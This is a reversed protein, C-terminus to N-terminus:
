PEAVFVCDRLKKGAARYITDQLHNLIIVLADRLAVDDAGPQNYANTAHSSARTCGMWVEALLKGDPTSLDLLRCGDFDAICVDYPRSNSPRVANGNKDQQIGVFEILWRTAARRGETISDTSCRWFIKDQSPARDIIAQVGLVSNKM